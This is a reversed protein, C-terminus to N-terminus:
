FYGAIYVLVGTIRNDFTFKYDDTEEILKLSNNGFGLGLGVNKFVRYEMGLTSDTYTGDYRDFKLAFFESKVYWQFKPSVYYTLGFSFVPLPLSTSVDRAELGPPNTSDARLGVAIRTIHFGAGASLEVKDTHYFSWLYGVKYIDYDLTSDVNAGIPITIPDGNNDVWDFEEEISKNGLSSISYWSYTLAHENTFRYHGDLRFVTRENTMGLTSQPDISAGVGLNKETLSLTSEYRSLSYGGFAIKFKDVPAEEAHAYNFTAFVIAALLIIHKFCAYHQTPLIGTQTRISM